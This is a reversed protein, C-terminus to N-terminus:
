PHVEAMPLPFRADVMFGGESAAGADLRGGVSAVRERMGVLGKGAPTGPRAGRGDDAITIGLEHPSYALTVCVRTAEAHKLCNTLAEQAVRYVALELASPLPQPDGTVAFVVPLGTSRVREVLTPLGALSPVPQRPLHPQSGDGNEGDQRLTGLLQRLENLSRRGTTGIEAVAERARDPDTHVLREAVGAQVIMVSMAHGIVDHMERTIQLREDTAARAARERALAVDVDFRERRARVGSGLVGAGVYVVLTFIAGGRSLDVPQMLLGVVIGATMVGVADRAQIDRTVAVSTYFAVAPGITAAGVTNRTAVLLLLGGLTLVLVGLPYRRRVVLPGVALTTLLLSWISPPLNQPVAESGGLHVAVAAFLCALGLGIDWLQQAHTPPETHRM